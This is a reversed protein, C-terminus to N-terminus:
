VSLLIAEFMVSTTQTMMNMGYHIRSFVMISVIRILQQIFLLTDFM